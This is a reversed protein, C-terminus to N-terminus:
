TSPLESARQLTRSVTGNRPDVANPENILVSNRFSLERNLVSARTFFENIKQAKRTATGNAIPPQNYKRQSTKQRKVPQVNQRNFSLRDKTLGQGSKREVM